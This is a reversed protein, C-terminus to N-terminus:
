RLCKGKAGSYTFILCCHSLVQQKSVGDERLGTLCNNHNAGNELHSFQLKSLILAKSTFLLAPIQVWAAQIMSVTLGSPQGEMGKM